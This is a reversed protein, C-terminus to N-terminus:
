RGPSAAKRALHQAEIDRLLDSIVDKCGEYTVGLLKGIAKHKTLGM